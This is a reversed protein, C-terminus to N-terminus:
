DGAVRASAVTPLKAGASAERWVGISQASKGQEQKVEQV